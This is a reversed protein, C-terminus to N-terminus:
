ESGRVRQVIKRLDFDVFGIFALGALSLVTRKLWKMNVEGGRVIRPYYLLSGQNLASTRTPDFTGTLVTTAVHGSCGTNAM